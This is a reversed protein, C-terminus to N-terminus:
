GEEEEEEEEFSDRDESVVWVSLDVSLQREIRRM